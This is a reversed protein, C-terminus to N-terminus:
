TPVADGGDHHAVAAHAERRGALGVAGPQNLQHLADLVNGAGREGLAHVPVPLGEALVEVLHLPRRTYEVHRGEDGVTRQPGVDHALPPRVVGGRRLPDGLHGSERVVAAASSSTAMPSASPLAPWRTKESALSMRSRSWSNAQIDSIEM